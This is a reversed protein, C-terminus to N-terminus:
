DRPVLLGATVERPSRRLQRAARRPAMLTAVAKARSGPTQRRGFLVGRAARRPRAGGPELAERARALALERRTDAIADRVARRETTSLDTRAAAKGLTQLTGAFMRSRQSSLNQPTIRYRALPQDVLGVRSGALIMRLWLDWDATYRIAEDFGGVALVAERRAAALGFVFNRRLIETRQDDVVFPNSQDYCRRVPRGGVELVADTTLVDLDPRAAAFEGLAELRDPAFVDDADLIVVFDGSAVKCGTNKATAEGGNAKRLM